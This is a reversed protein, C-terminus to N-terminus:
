CHAGAGGRGSPMGSKKGMGAERGPARFRDGGRRVAADGNEEAVAVVRTGLDAPEPSRVSRKRAPSPSFFSYLTKQGIM